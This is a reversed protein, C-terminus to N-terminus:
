LIGHWELTILMKELLGQGALIISPLGKDRIQMGPNSPLVLIFLYASNSKLIGYPELTMLIKM